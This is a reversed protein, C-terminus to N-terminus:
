VKAEIILQLEKFIELLEKIDKLTIYMQIENENEKSFCVKSKYFDTFNLVARVQLSADSSKFVLEKSDTENILKM